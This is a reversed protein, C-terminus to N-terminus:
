AEIVGIRQSIPALALAKRVLSRRRVIGAKGLKSAQDAIIKVMGLPAAIVAHHFREATTFSIVEKGVWLVVRLLADFPHVPFEIASRMIRGELYDGNILIM